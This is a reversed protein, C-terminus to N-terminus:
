LFKREFLLVVFVLVWSSFSFYDLTNLSAYLLTIPSLPIQHFDLQLDLINHYEYQLFLMSNQNLSQCILSSIKACSKLLYVNICM